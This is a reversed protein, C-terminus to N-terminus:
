YIGKKKLISLAIKAATSGNSHDENRINTAFFYTNKKNEVYGIFWGNINKNNVSGTGTKGSLIAGDKEELKISDKITQINKDTYGFQNTYLSKLLLVQEVPSIELSSEMWFQDGRGTLNENGYGVQKLYAQLSDKDFRKDLEQFYWNVSSKMATHLNQNKNWAAYPYMEGNWYLTSNEKTIISSELAFLASYIKYTSNPSVRSESNKKNYISFHDANMDYLVFSGDYGDFYSSLDEYDTRDGKFQYYHNDSAIATILPIQSAVVISALMFITISKKKLQKSEMKFSAIKQIRRKLQEKSSAMQNEFVFNKQRSVRDVFTIITNGYEAYCQEDLSKLVDMDCSIERDLRMERFAIWVLPNFWYLLQFIVILYNTVNDKNKYHNLEHLIVYKIDNMTLWENFHIPFVVYAKHLGFMMPSKVLPSEGVILERSINLHQKCEELLRLIDNNKLRSTSRQIHKIRLWAYVAPVALLLMGVMWIIALLDDLVAPTYRHVSISFDELWNVNGTVQNETRPTTPGMGDYRNFASLSFDNAFAFYHTPIFPITLAIFLLYWLNYHWKASLQKRFLKKTLMIVAVSFSSVIFSTVMHTIFM